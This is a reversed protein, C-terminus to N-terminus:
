YLGPGQLTVRYLATRATIYLTKRDAGGFACNAPQQPVAITGWLKGNSDFVEIGVSTSVFLNGQADVTMGDPNPSTTVLKAMAGAKGDADLQYTRLEGSDTDDIYLTKQDPSLAIGNPRSMDNAILELTGTPTFRFIGQFGLESLNPNALGYPPDTFYINGDDRIILDNPSNLKKGQYTDVVTTVMGGMDIRSVRRNGHECAHLVGNKDIALGNSNGSPELFTTITSPPTLAHIRNGPIDSFVLTGKAPMWQPGETFMFTDAVLEVVGIGDLPNTKVMNGGTGGNGGVSGMGGEGGGGNGGGSSSSSSSTTPPTTTSTDDCAMLFGSSALFGVMLLHLRMPRTYFALALNALRRIWTGAFQFM